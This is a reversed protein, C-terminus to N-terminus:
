AAREFKWPLIAAMDGASTLYERFLAGFKALLPPEIVDLDDQCRWEVLTDALREDLADLQRGGRECITVRFLKQLSAPLSLWGAEHALIVIQIQCHLSLTPSAHERLRSAFDVLYPSVTTSLEILWTPPKDMSEIIRDSWRVLDEPQLLEDEIAEVLIASQESLTM